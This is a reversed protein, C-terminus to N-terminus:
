ARADHGSEGDVHRFFTRKVQPELEEIDLVTLFDITKFARDIAPPGTIKARLKLYSAFLAPLKVTVDMDPVFDPGYTVYGPRPDTRWIPHVFGGRELFDYTQRAEHPDQSTLSCCGFLLSKENWRLYSALGKWLLTIVRGNRHEAAVCARGTEVAREFLEEPLSSLDFEDDTYFGCGARAMELTQLRYTGVVTDSDRHVVMLHHCQADFQDQDLGTDFSAALGEGLELNFVQFRLRQLAQLDRPTRAFRAQYSGGQLDLDPLSERASPYAAPPPLAAAAIRARDVGAGRERPAPPIHKVPREEPM